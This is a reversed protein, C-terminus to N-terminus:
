EHNKDELRAEIEKIATHAIAGMLLWGSLFAMFINKTYIALLGDIGGLVAMLIAM